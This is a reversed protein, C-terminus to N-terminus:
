VWGRQRLLADVQQWMQLYTFGSRVHEGAREGLDRRLEPDADVLRLADRWGAVDGPRVMIATADTFYERMAPTDTLILCAGTGAAELAVTQGTPYALEHTPVVVVSATSVIQRYRAYPVRGHFTVEDPLDAGNVNGPGAYLDIRIGTGRAAELLTPYDRGRDSGVSVVGARSDPDAAPFLGPAYGFPIAVVSGAPFGADELVDVQNSSWVMTLDVGRYRRVVADREDRGMRRLEDALWCALMVLPKGAYPRVGRRKAWAASLAEKELFALVVDARAALRLSRVTKDVPQGLRHEVVDRVKRHARSGAPEVELLEYGLDRMKDIGYPGVRALGGTLVLLQPM